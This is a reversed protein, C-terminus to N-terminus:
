SKTKFAAFPNQPFVQCMAQGLWGKVFCRMIGYPVTKSEAM